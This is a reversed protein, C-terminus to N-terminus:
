LKHFQGYDVPGYPVEAQRLLDSVKEVVNPKYGCILKVMDSAHTLLMTAVTLAYVFCHIMM